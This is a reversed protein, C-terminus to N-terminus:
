TYNIVFELKLLVIIFINFNTLIKFNRIKISNYKLMKIIIFLLSLLKLDINIHLIIFKQYPITM